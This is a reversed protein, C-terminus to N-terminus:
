NHTLQTNNIFVDGTTVIGADNASMPGGLSVIGAAQSIDPTRAGPRYLAAYDLAIGRAALVQEIRGAGEFPVHRFAIVRV